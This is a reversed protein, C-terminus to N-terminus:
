RPKTTAPRTGVSPPAAAPGNLRELIDYTINLRNQYVIAGNLGEMISKRNNPDIEESNFRVVMDISNRQAFTTVERVIEQYVNYYIRAERDLFDKRKLAMDAQYKTQANVIQEEIARRDPTGENFTALKQEMQQIETEWGKVQNQFADVDRKMNEMAAKFRNHNKFIYSIDIVAINARGGPAAAATRAPSQGAAPMALVILAIGVCAM